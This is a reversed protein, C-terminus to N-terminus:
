AEEEELSGSKRATGKDLEVIMWNPQADAQASYMVTVLPLINYFTLFSKASIDAGISRLRLKIAGEAEIDTTFEIGVQRTDADFYLVCAVYTDLMFRKRAGQSFGILGRPSISVKPSYSRGTETFKVFAM